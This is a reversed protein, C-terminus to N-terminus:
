SAFTLPLSLSAEVGHPNCNRLHFEFSNGYLNKLRTNVNSIGVGRHNDERSSPLGPGDNFVTLMLTGNASAAAIRIGGGQVRKAVGHKVANEVMPQLILIPVRASLLEVPVEVSFQLRDAFRIKQIDLYKQTFALEESLPVQQQDSANVVRRLFDSLEVIMSVAADNNRERVLSAITNLTNFLFHPEIQRRLADLQAKMLQENLQAREAQQRAFQERSDLMYGVLVVMVYLILYYLIGNSFKSTFLRLFSDPRPSLAWPNLMVEMLAMWAASVLGLGTCAAIHMGWTSFRNWKSLSYKRRLRILVPTAMAWPLWELTITLFLYGWAHHMGEAHMVVVTQTADFIAIGSWIAAIWLWRSKFGPGEM